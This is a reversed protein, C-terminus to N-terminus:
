AGGVERMMDWTIYPKEIGFESLDIKVEGFSRWGFKRYLGRGVQSSNVFMKGGNKDVEELVVKSITAGIGKRQHEPAFDFAELEALRQVGLGKEHAEIEGVLYGILAGNASESIVPNFEPETNEGGEKWLAFGLVEKGARKGEQVEEAVLFHM